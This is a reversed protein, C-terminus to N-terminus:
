KLNDIGKKILVTGEGILDISSYTKEQVMVERTAAARMFDQFSDHVYFDNKVITQYTEADMYIPKQIKKKKAM